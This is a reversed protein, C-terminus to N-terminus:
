LTNQLIYDIIDILKSYFKETIMKDNAVAEIKLLPFEM